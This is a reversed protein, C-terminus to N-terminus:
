GVAEVSYTRSQDSLMRVTVDGPTRNRWEIPFERAGLVIYSNAGNITPDVGDIRVWIAGAQDRNVVVIGDSGPTITVSAVTNATLAGHATSAM